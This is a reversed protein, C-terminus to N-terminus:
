IKEWGRLERNKKKGGHKRVQEPNEVPVCFTKTGSIDLKKVKKEGKRDITGADLFEVEIKRSKKTNRFVKNRSRIESM